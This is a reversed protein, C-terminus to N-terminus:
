GTPTPITPTLIFTPDGFVFWSIIATLLLAASIIIIGLLSQWIKNWANTMNQPGGQIYLYGAIILNILVFLGGIVLLLAIVRSILGTLGGAKLDLFNTFKPPSIVGLPGLFINM